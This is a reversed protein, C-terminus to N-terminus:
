FDAQGDDNDGQGLQQISKIVKAQLKHHYEFNQRRNTTVEIIVSKKASVAVQYTKQFEKTTVPHFYALGFMEATKQFTLGHPAAFYTELLKPDQSVPLFSFIGGGDNNIVVLILPTRSQRVLALSNMDHLFALDGIMVTVPNKLGDAFGAASALIGDIGSAGRNSGVVVTNGAPSAFIDMDRLPMSNGLFLGHKEPINESILWAVAPETLEEQTKFQQVMTKHVVASRSSWFLINNRHRAHPIANLMQQCFIEAKLDIRCTVQHFPDSRFPHNFVVIYERLPCTQIFDNWRRSTLRGGVHLIGDVAGTKVIHERIKPSALIHDFYNIIIKEQYGMRLGSTIDAFIPWGLHQALDLVAQREIDTSLKGVVVLGKSIKRIRAAIELSAKSDIDRQAPIYHTLPEDAQKWFKIDEQDYGRNVQTAMPLLPERFPCNIHVPGPPHGMARAVAQDITTLLFRPNIEMSPCPLDFHFRVYEGFMGPQEITQHAGTKRLEPPRDATLIILPVKKKSAEVLAPWCNLAATGSTVILASPRKTVSARGVAYFCLGREDFHVLCNNPQRKAVAFALPGSRSGPALCFCDVGWRVLEEIILESWFTNTNASLPINM